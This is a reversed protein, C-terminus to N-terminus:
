IQKGQFQNARESRFDNEFVELLGNYEKYNTNTQKVKQDIFIACLPKFKKFYKGILESWIRTKRLNVLLYMPNIWRLVVIKFRLEYKWIFALWIM